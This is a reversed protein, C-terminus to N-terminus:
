TQYIVLEGSQGFDSKIIKKRLIVGSLNVLQPFYRQYVNRQKLRGCSLRKVSLTLANLFVYDFM